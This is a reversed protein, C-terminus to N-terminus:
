LSQLYTFEWIESRAFYVACASCKFQFFSKENWHVVADHIDVINYPVNPDRKLQVLLSDGAFSGAFCDRVRRWSYQIRADPNATAEQCEKEVDARRKEILEKLEDSGKPYREVYPM